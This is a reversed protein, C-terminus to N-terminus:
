DGYGGRYNDDKHGNKQGERGNAMTTKNKTETKYKQKKTIM